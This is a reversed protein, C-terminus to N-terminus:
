HFIYLLTDVKLAQLTNSHYYSFSIIRLAQSDCFMEANYNTNLM